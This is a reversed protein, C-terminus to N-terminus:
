ILSLEHKDEITCDLFVTEKSVRSETRLVGHQIDHGVGASSLLSSVISEYLTWRRPIRLPMELATSVELCLQGM